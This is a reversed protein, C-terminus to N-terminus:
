ALFRCLQACVQAASMVSSDLSELAAVRSQQEVRSSDLEAHDLYVACQVLQDTPGPANRPLQLPEPSQHCWCAPPCPCPDSQTGRHEDRCGDMASHGCDAPSGSRCCPESHAFPCSHRNECDPLAAACEAQQCFAHTQPATSSLALAMGLLSLARKLNDYRRFM